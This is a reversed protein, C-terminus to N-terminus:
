EDILKLLACVLYEKAQWPEDVEIANIARKIFQAVAFEKQSLEVNSKM